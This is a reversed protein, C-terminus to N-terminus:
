TEEVDPERGRAWAVWEEVENSGRNRKLIERHRICINSPLPNLFVLCSSSSLFVDNHLLFLLFFLPFFFAYQSLFQPLPDNPLPLRSVGERGGEKRANILDSCAGTGGEGRTEVRQTLCTSRPRAQSDPSYSRPMSKSLIINKLKNKLTKVKKVSGTSPGRQCARQPSPTCSSTLSQWSDVTPAAVPEPAPAADTAAPKVGPQEQM